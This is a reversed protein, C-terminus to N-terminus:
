ARGGENPQPFALRVETIGDMPRTPLVQLEGTHARMIHDVIWLGLGNGEGSSARAAEGRWNRQRVLHIEEPKIPIGKNTVAIFFGGRRLTSAFVRIVTNPYSYKVANDVLNGLSQLLLEPDAVLASPAHKYFSDADFQIRINRRESIRPRQNECVQGAMNVLDVPTLPSGSM